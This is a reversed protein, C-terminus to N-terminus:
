RKRMLYLVRHGNLVPQTRIIEFTQSFVAEFNERPLDGYLNERTALLRQVM